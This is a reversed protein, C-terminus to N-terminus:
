IKLVGSYEGNVHMSYHWCVGNFYDPIPNLFVKNNSKLERAVGVAQRLLLPFETLEDVLIILNM